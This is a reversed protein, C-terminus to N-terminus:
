FEREKREAAPQDTITEVTSKQTQQQRKWHRGLEAISEGDDDVSNAVRPLNPRNKTCEKPHANQSTDHDKPFRHFSLHPSGSGEVKNECGAM